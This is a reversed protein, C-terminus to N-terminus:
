RDKGPKRGHAAWRALTSKPVGLAKAAARASGYMDITARVIEDLSPTGYRDDRNGPGVVLLSTSGVTLVAGVPLDSQEIALGNVRTPNKGDRYDHVRLMEGRREVVCHSGSVYPDDLKIGCGHNSGIVVAGQRQRFEYVTGTKLDRLGLAPGSLDRVLAPPPLTRTNAM